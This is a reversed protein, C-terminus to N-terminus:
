PKRRKRGRRREATTGAVQLGALKDKVDRVLALQWSALQQVGEMDSMLECIMEQEAKNM